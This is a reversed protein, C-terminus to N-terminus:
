QSIEMKVSQSKIQFRQFRSGAKNPSAIVSGENKFAIHHCKHSTKWVTQPFPSVRQPNSPHLQSFFEDEHFM